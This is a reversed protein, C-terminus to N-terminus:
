FLESRLVMAHTRQTGSSELLVGLSPGIIPSLKLAELGTKLIEWTKAQRWNAM